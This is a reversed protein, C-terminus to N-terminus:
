EKNKKLVAVNKVFHAFPGISIKQAITQFGNKRIILYYQEGASIPAKKTSIRYKGEKNSRTECGPVKDKGEKDLAIFIEADKIPTEYKELEYVRAKLFSKFLDPETCVIGVVDVKEGKCGAMALLSFFSLVFGTIRIPSM